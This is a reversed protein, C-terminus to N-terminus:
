DQHEAELEAMRRGFAEQVEPGLPQSYFLVQAMLLGVVEPDLMFMHHTLLTSRNQRGVLSLAVRFMPKADPNDFDERRAGAITATGVSDVLIAKAVDDQPVGVVPLVGIPPTEALNDEAPDTVGPVDEAESGCPQDHVLPYPMECDWCSIGIDLRSEHDLLVPDPHDPTMGAQVQASTLVYAAVATWRHEGPVKAPLQGMAGSDTSGPVEAFRHDVM